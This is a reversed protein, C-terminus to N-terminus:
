FRATVHVSVEHKDYSITPVNSDRQTYNHRLAISSFRNPLYKVEARTAYVNDDRLQGIFKDSEYMASTSVVVNRLLEYDIGLQVARARVSSV